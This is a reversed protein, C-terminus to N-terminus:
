VTVVGAGSRTGMMTQWLGAQERRLQERAIIIDEVAKKLTRTKWRMPLIKDMITWNNIDDYDIVKFSKPMVGLIGSESCNYYHWSRPSTDYVAAHTETWTKYTYLSSTTGKLKFDLISEKSIVGDRLDFGVWKKMGKAEDRGSAMNTSYDGDAYYNTRRKEEDDCLDYGLDNGVTIFVNSHMQILSANWAVNTVNGGQPIRRDTVDVGCEEIVDGQEGTPIYFQIMRGQKSWGELIKPHVHFGCFLITNKARQPIKKCLQDYLSEAADVLVVIHPIIGVDVCPKFQHNSCMFLFPQDKFEFRANFLCVKKLYELNRKLSAGAGIMITAKNTGFDYCNDVLLGYKDYYRRVNRRTNDNWDGTLSKVTEENIKKSAEFVMPDLIKEIAPNHAVLDDYSTVHDKM